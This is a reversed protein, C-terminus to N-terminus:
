VGVISRVSGLIGAVGVKDDAAHFEYNERDFRRTRMRYECTYGPWLTTNRGDATQYWSSCGTSWVTNKMRSQVEDNFAQQAEAKVDLYTAGAEEVTEIAQLIYEAQSEMMFIMSNHGLGTNPGIITFLNPFGSITTGMHGEAYPNWEENLSRGDRGMVDFPALEEAAKFGTAMIIVDFEHETGDASIAGNPVIETVSDTVVQVDERELAPYYDNSVLIRKCGMTYDPTVKERLDPDDISARLHLKVLKSLAKLIWPETVFGVARAELEWYLRVRQLKLLAPARRYVEKEWEPIRRDRKPTIWPPTRQFVTLSEVEPAISPVVQIASAGTGVVAVKKGRLDVSHDWESTHFLDGEFSELGDINPFAPRNLPGCGSIVYKASVYEGGSLEVNWHGTVEDFEAGAVESHFRIHPYLGYKEACHKMYALIEHQEAFMRSWEPSQEFSYSYVFSQVDCAAGPYTNDRWTGGIESAREFLTFNHHGSQKLRIAMCLGAFGTGVIAIHPQTAHSKRNTRKLM